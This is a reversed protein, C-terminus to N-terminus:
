PEILHRLDIVKAHILELNPLYETGHHGCFALARGSPLEAYLYAQVKAEAPCADCFDTDVEITVIVPRHRDVVDVPPEGM